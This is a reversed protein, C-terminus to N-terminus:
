PSKTLCCLLLLLIEELSSEFKLKLVRWMGRMLCWNEDWISGTYPSSFQLLPQQM